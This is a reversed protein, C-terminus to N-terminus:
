AARLAKRVAEPNRDIVLLYARAAGDPTSRGQEWDRVNKVSIGFQQAFAAQTLKLKKRIAVVDIESPIHVRFDKPAATGQAYAVADRLGDRIGEFVQNKRAM